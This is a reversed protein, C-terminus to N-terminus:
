SKSNEDAAPRAFWAGQGAAWQRYGRQHTPADITGAARRDLVYHCGTCHRLDPGESAGTNLVREAFRAARERRRRWGSAVALAAPVLLVAMGLRGWSFDSFLPLLAVAAIVAAVAYGASSLGDRGVPMEYGLGPADLPM